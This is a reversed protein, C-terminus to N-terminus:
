FEEQIISSTVKSSEIQLTYDISAQRVEHFQLSDADFYLDFKGEIGTERNKEISIVTDPQDLHPTTEVIKRRKFQDQDGDIHNRYVCIVSNAEDTIAAAGRAGFKDPREKASIPKRQHVV